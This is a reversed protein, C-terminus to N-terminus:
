DEQQQDLEQLMAEVKDTRLRLGKDLAVDLLDSVERPPISQPTSPPISLTFLRSSVLNSWKVTNLLLDSMLLPTQHLKVSFSFQM